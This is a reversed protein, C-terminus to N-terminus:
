VVSIHLFIYLFFHKSGNPESAQFKNNLLTYYLKFPPRLTGFLKAASTKPNSSRFEASRNLAM